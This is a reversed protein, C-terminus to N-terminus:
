SPLKNEQTMRDHNSLQPTRRAETLPSQEVELAKIRDEHGHHKHSITNPQVVVQSQPLFLIGAGPTENQNQM